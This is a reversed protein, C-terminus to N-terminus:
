KKHGMGREAGAHRATNEPDMEGFFNSAAVAAIRRIAGSFRSNTRFMAHVTLGSANFKRVAWLIGVKQTWSNRKEGKEKRCSGVLPLFGM